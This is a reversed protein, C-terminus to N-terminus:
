HLGDQSVKLSLWVNPNNQSQRKLFKYGVWSWLKVEPTGNDLVFDGKNTVVTLVAHGEGNGDKVVTILLAERPWGARMLMRRKLLVYDECDGYGDDPYNWRDAVGWHQWDTLPRISQNVWANVEVLDQWAKPTLIIQRPLTWPMECEPSYEVCFKVWGIPASVQEGVTMNLPLQEAAITGGGLALVLLLVRIIFM